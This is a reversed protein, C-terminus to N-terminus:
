KSPKFSIENRWPYSTTKYWNENTGSSGSIKVAFVNLFDFSAAEPPPDGGGGGGDDCGIGYLECDDPGGGGGGENPECYCSGVILFWDGCSIVMGDPYVWCDQQIECKEIGDPECNVEIFNADPENNNSKAAVSNNRVISKKGTIKGNTVVNISLLKDNWKKIIMKGAFDDSPKGYGTNSIDFNKKQLYEMDPIYTVETVFIEGQENKTFKIKSLSADAIRKKDALSLKSPVPLQKKAMILPFEIIELNGVKHYFENKWVPIKKGNNLKGQTSNEFYKYYWLKATAANFMKNPNVKGSEDLLDTKQCGLGFLIVITALMTLKLIM